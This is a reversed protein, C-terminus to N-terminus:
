TESALGVLGLRKLLAPITLGQALISFVVYGFTMSVVLDRGAFEVPLGLALAMCLAGRLGGWFLVHQWSAPVEGGLRNILPSLGYVSVARAALVILVGGGVSGLHTWWRVQAAQMGVLLFIISNVVFAAFDWFTVVAERNEAQMARVMGDNGMVLGASVVAIIGSVHVSESLLTSGYAVLMSLMMELLYDDTRNVVRSATWGIAAGMAMGGLMVMAFQRLSDLLVFRDGTAVHLLVVFLVVAVGDNFLSEAEIVLSLRKNVKLRKLLAIVSVPDTPSILAGFVLSAAWPLRLCGTGLAAIIFTSLLTGPLAFFAIAKWESLLAKARLHIAADFLLPPLLLTFLFHPTLASFTFSPVTGLVLGAVVLAVTYPLDFRKAVIAVLVSAMLLWVFQTIDFAGQSPLPVNM